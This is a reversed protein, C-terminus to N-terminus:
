QEPPAMLREAAVRVSVPLAVSTQIKWAPVVRVVAVEVEMMRPPLALSSFMKQARPVDAVMPYADSKLPLMRALAAMEKPWSEDSTPLARAMVATENSPPEVTVRGAVVVALLFRLVATWATWVASVVGSVM